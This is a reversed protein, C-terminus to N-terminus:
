KGGTPIGFAVRVTAGHQAFDAVEAKGAGFEAVADPEPEQGADQFGHVRAFDLNGAEM